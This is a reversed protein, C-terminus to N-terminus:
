ARPNSRLFTDFLCGASLLKFMRQYQYHTIIGISHCYLEIGNVLGVGM